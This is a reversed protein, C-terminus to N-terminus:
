SLFDVSYNVDFLKKLEFKTQTIGEWIMLHHQFFDDMKLTKNQIPKPPCDSYFEILKNLIFSLYYRLNGTISELNEVLAADHILENRIRYLRVLHLELNSKHMNLYNKRKESENFLYSKLRVSRYFLLPYQELYNEIVYDYTKVNILYNFDEINESNERANFIELAEHFNLLNRKVYYVSHTIPLFSLIRKFTSSDKDYNSFIYELGIWYNIFKKEIEIAESGLRLHRLASDIKDKVEFAISSNSDISQLKNLFLQHLDKNSKFYGDIQYHIPQINAKSRDSKNVVVVSEKIRLKLNSYGLHIRDLLKSLKSKGVKLAQYYDLADVDLIIFRKGNGVKIYNAIKSIPDNGIIENEVTTKLDGLVVKSLQNESGIMTFIIHYSDKNQSSLINNFTDWSEDFSPIDTYIFLAQVLKYIYSKSFGSDLAESILFGLLMDLEIFFEIIKGVESPKNDLHSKTKSLLSKLYNSNISLVYFLQYELREFVPNKENIDKLESILIDETITDFNLYHNKNKLFKILEERSSIVTNIDKIKNNNWDHIIHYFEDLASKPNLLKVRYSDLSRNYCLEQLKEILFKQKFNYTHKYSNKQM